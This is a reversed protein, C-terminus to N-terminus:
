REDLMSSRNPEMSTGKFCNINQIDIIVFYVLCQNFQMSM